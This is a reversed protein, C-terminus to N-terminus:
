STDVALAAAGAKRTPRDPRPPPAEDHGLTFVGISINDYGGGEIAQAILAECAELPEHQGVIKQIAADDVLDSLGDSCLVLRDGPRLPMGETWVCPDVEPRTGMAKIIVHREPSRAAEEATLSGNRVLEAVLTHDPSIQCMTEDRLIYARSDGVHALYAHNEVVAVVTCTTGMGACGPEDLSRQHIARNAAAFCCRLVDPVLGNTEYYQWCIIDAAMRSAVEGASHGGIGDAVLLLAGQRSKPDTKGPLV